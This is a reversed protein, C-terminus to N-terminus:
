ERPVNQKGQLLSLVAQADSLSSERAVWTRQWVAVPCRHHSSAGLGGFLGSMSFSEDITSSTLARIKEIIVYVSTMMSNVSATPLYWSFVTEVSAVMSITFFLSYTCLSPASSRVLSFRRDDHFLATVWQKWVFDPFGRVIM